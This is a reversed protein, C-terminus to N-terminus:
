RKFTGGMECSLHGMECSLHGQRLSAKGFGWGVGHGMVKSQKVMAETVVQYKGLLRNPTAQRGWSSHMSKLVFRLPGTGPQVGPGPM